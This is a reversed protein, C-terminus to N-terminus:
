GKRPAVEISLRRPAPVEWEAKGPIGELAQYYGAVRGVLLPVNFPNEVEVRLREGKREIVTFNGLGKVTQQRLLALYNRRERIDPQLYADKKFDGQIEVVMREVEDGLEEALERFLANLGDVPMVVERMHHKRNGVLGENEDWYFTQSIRVPVGCEGCARHEVNGPLPDKKEYRFRESEGSGEKGGSARYTVSVPGTGEGDVGYEFGVGEAAEFFGRCLGCLLDPHYPKRMSVTIERRPRYSAISLRGFGLISFVKFIREYYNKMLFTPHTIRGGPILSLYESYYAKGLRRGLPVEARAAIKGLPVGIREAVGRLVNNVEDTKIYVLQTREVDNAFINGGSSWRM